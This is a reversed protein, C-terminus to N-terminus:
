LLLLFQQPSGFPLKCKIYNCFLAVTMFKVVVTSNTFEIYDPLIGCKVISIKAGSDRYCPLDIKSADNKLSMFIATYKYQLGINDSKSVGYIDCVPTENNDHIFNLKQM